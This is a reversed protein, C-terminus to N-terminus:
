LGLKEKLIALLSPKNLQPRTTVRKREEDTLGALSGAALAHYREILRSDLERELDILAQIREEWPNSPLRPADPLEFLAQNTASRFLVTVPHGDGQAVEDRVRDLDEIYPDQIKVTMRGLPIEVGLLGKCMDEPGFTIVASEQLSKLRKAGEENAEVVKPLGTTLHDNFARDAIARYVFIIAAIDTGSFGGQPLDFRIGTAREITMLRHSTQRSQLLRSIEILPLDFGLALDLGAEPMQFHVRQSLALAANLTSAVFDDRACDKTPALRFSVQAIEFSSEHETLRGAFEINAEVNPDIAVRIFIQGADKDQRMQVVTADIGFNFDPIFVRLFVSELSAAPFCMRGSLVKPTYEPLTVRAIGPLVAPVVASSEIDLLASMFWFRGKSWIASEAIFQQAFGIREIRTNCRRTAVM